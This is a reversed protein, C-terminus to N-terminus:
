RHLEEIVQEMAALKKIVESYEDETNSDLVVGSSTQAYCENGSCFLSRIPMTFVCDGNFSFRGVAGGYPGRPEPENHEIIKITEIKPAGTLVGCPTMAALVDYSTINDAITGTIDSLMHQVHSFAAIYKRRPVKVSGTQSVKGLDNRHLDILMNHEAIEKPDSLLKEALKEDEDATNGRSVTGAAVTTILQGGNNRVVIEPSSGFMERTEFKFYYMYPSPNVERLKSYVALKDGVITYKTKFGIEVQFSNGDRIKRLSYNVATKHQQKTQNHGHNKVSSIEILQLPKAIAVKVTESRDTEYFYYELEDSKLDYVLGDQYYGLEFTPFDAHENLNLSPEFYNVAEYTFNGVLGGQHATGQGTLPFRDALELYPNKVEIIENDITLKNGKASIHHKPDFGFTVKSDGHQDDMKSELLYCIQSQSRLNSFLAFYDDVKGFKIVTPKSQMM